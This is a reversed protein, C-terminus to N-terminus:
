DATCWLAAADFLRWGQETLARIVRGNGLFALAVRRAPALGAATQAGREYGFMLGAHEPAGAYRAILTATAPPAAWRLNLPTALVRVNGSLGAALPHAPDEITVEALPPVPGIDRRWRTGTLGLQEWGTSELVLMPVPVEAFWSRLQKSSVSPSLVLLTAARAREPSLTGADAVTVTFGLRELRAKLREESGRLGEPPAPEEKTDDPGTLLLAERAAVAKPTELDDASVLALQGAVVDTGRQVGLAAVRARGERVEVRTTATAVELRVTGTGTVIAHPSALTWAPGGQGPVVATARGHAVFLRLGEGRGGEGTDATLAAVADGGLEVRSGAPGALRARAGAGATSVWDGAGVDLAPAARRTGDAGHRYAPGEVAELRALAGRDPAAEGANWSRAAPLRPPTPSRAAWTPIARERAPAAPAPAQQRDLRPLLLLLAAAGGALLATAAILRSATLRRAPASAPAGVRGRGAPGVVRATARAAAKAELQKRVAAVVEETRSAATVLARVAAVTSEQGREIEGAARLAGEMQLDHILRRRFVDDRELAAALAAREEAELPEWALFRTWLEELRKREEDTV